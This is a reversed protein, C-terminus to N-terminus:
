ARESFLPNKEIRNLVALLRAVEEKISVGALPELRHGTSLALVSLVALGAERETDNDSSVLRCIDKFSPVRDGRWMDRWSNGANLGRTSEFSGYLVAHGASLADALLRLAKPYASGFDTQKWKLTDFPQTALPKTAAPLTPHASKSETWM